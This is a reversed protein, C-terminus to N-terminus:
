EGPSICTERQEVEHVLRHEIAIHAVGRDVLRQTRAHDGLSGLLHPLEYRGKCPRPRSASPLATHSWGSSSATAFSTRECFASRTTMAGPKCPAPSVWLSHRQHRSARNRYEDHLGGRVRLIPVDDRGDIRKVSVGFGALEIKRNERMRVIQPRPRASRQTSQMAEHGDLIKPASKVIGTLSENAISARRSPDFLQEAFLSAPMM